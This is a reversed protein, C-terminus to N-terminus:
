PGELAGLSRILGKLAKGLHEWPPDLDVGRGGVIGLVKEFFKRMYSEYFSDGYFFRGCFSAIFVRWSFKGNFFYFFNRSFLFGFFFGWLGKRVFGGVREMFFLLSYFWVYMSHSMVLSFIESQKPDVLIFSKKFLISHLTSSIEWFSSLAM